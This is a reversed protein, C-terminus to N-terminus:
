LSKLHEEFVKKNLKPYKVIKGCYGCKSNGLNDMQICVIKGHCKDCDHYRDLHEMAEHYEELNDFEYKLGIM